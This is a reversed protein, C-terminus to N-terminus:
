SKLHSKTIHSIIGPIDECLCSCWLVHHCRCKEHNECQCRLECGCSSTNLCMLPLENLRRTFIAEDSEHTKMTIARLKEDARSNLGRESTKCVVISKFAPIDFLVYMIVTSTAYQMTNDSSEDNLLGCAFLTMGTNQVLV